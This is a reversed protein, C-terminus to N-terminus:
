FFYKNSDIIEYDEIFLQPTINGMWENKNCKAVINVDIYGTNNDLFKLKDIESARFKMISIGNPLEIKLTLTNKDYVTVMNPTIRINKLAILAEDLDKGWLAELGAIDLVIQPQVEKAEWIYDVRYVPVTPMDKLIENIKKIFRDIKDEEIGLGFAGEHGTAYMIEGTAACMSKFETIGVKDCGRASGQYSIRKANAPIDEWPPISEDLSEEVRTLICCPRQYEAMMKNAILGAINRDIEGPELLFIMAKNDLIHDTEIKSKLKELGAEQAKTQRAKVNTAVRVAQEVLKEKAGAAHGRKTSPIEEFAKLKLMSRFVLIKEDMTGSRVIANVFPAIYFAVGIPTIVEGLSYRNKEIMYVIFPNKLNEEKLGEQILHKTEISTLSMMDAVNGLAVLDLYNDAYNQDLLEDLYRCFQWTVGVGSLEKNPYDSNQNNIVFAYPNEKDCIHHDLVIISCNLENLKKCQETDNSGADPILILFPKGSTLRGEELFQIHDSLGHQKNDHLLYHLHAAVWTPFADYLYNYLLASSTFGDCDADVILFTDINLNVAYILETAAEKLLELGFSEPQAVDAWTTNLYHPIEEKPINRNTLIQETATYNQNIPKILSYKM